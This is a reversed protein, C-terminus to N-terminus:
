DRFFDKKLSLMVFTNEDKLYLHGDRGATPSFFIEADEPFLAIARAFQEAAVACPELNDGDIPITLIRKKHKGQLRLHGDVVEMRILGQPTPTLVGKTIATIARRMELEDLIGIPRAQKDVYETYKPYRGQVRPIANVRGGQRVWVISETTRLQFPGTELMSLATAIIPQTVVLSGLEVSVGTKAAVLLVGDTGVLELGGESPFICISNIAYRVDDDQRRCKNATKAANVMPKADEITVWDDEPPDINWMEEASGRFALNTSGTIITGSNGKDLELTVEGEVVSLAAICSVLDFGAEGDEEIVADVVRECYHNKHFNATRIEVAAQLTTIAASQGPDDKSPKGAFPTMESMM